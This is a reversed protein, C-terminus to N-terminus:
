RLYNYNGIAGRIDELLEMTAEAALNVANKHLNANHSHSEDKSIGGQPNQSSSLDTEGGHSCKGQPKKPSFLGMYGSTLYKGNLIAPLLQNPCTGSACDSCTPMAIDAIKEINLDPKILNAYPSTYGLEVWNSHSYFDQPSFCSNVYNDRTHEQKDKHPKTGTRM